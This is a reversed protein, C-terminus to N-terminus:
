QVGGIAERVLAARKALEPAPLHAAAKGPCRFDGADSTVDHAGHTNRRDCRLVPEDLSAFVPLAPEGPHSHFCGTGACHKPMFGADHATTLPQGPALHRRM